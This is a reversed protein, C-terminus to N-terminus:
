YIPPVTAWDAERFLTPTTRALGRLLAMAPRSSIL